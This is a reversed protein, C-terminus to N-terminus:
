AGRGGHHSKVKASWRVDTNVTAQYSLEGTNGLVIGVV